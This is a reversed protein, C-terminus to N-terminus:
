PKKRGHRQEDDCRGGSARLVDVPERRSREVARVAHRHEIAQEDGTRLCPLLRQRKHHIQVTAAPDAVVIEFLDGAAVGRARM